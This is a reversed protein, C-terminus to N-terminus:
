QLYDTALSVNSFKLQEQEPITKISQYKTKFSLDHNIIRAIYQRNKCLEPKNSFVSIVNLQFQGSPFYKGTELYFGAVKDAEDGSIDTPLKDIIYASANLTEALENPIQLMTFMSYSPCNLSLLPPVKNSGLYIKAENEYGNSIVQLDKEHSKCSNSDPYQADVRLAMNKVLIDKTILLPVETHHPYFIHVIDLSRSRMGAAINIYTVFHRITRIPGNIYGVSYGEIETENFHVTSSFLLLNIDVKGQLRTQNIIPQGEISMNDVSAVHKKSYTLSYVPSTVRNEQEQYSMYRTSSLATIPATEYTLYIWGSPVSSHGISVSLELVGSANIKTLAHEAKTGLDFAMFVLQDNHDFVSQGIPDENDYNNMNHREGNSVVEWVWNNESDKQDIQFPIVRAEGQHFAYVRINSIDKGLLSQVQYGNIIIPLLEDKVSSEALSEALLPKCLLFILLM